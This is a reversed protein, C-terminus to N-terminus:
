HFLHFCKTSINMIVLISPLGENSVKPRVPKRACLALLDFAFTEKHDGAYKNVAIFGRM